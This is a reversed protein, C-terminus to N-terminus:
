KHFLYLHCQIVGERKPHAPVKTELFSTKQVDMKPHGSEFEGDSIELNLILCVTVPRSDRDM